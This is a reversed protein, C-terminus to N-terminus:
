MLLPRFSSLRHPRMNVQREERAICKSVRLAMDVSENRFASLRKMLRPPFTWSSLDSWPVFKTPAFFSSAACEFFQVRCGNFFVQRRLVAVPNVEIQVSGM